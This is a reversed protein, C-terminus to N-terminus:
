LQVKRRSLIQNLASLGRAQLAKVANESKGLARAVQAIPMEAIFRMIIVDCQDATLRRLAEQLHRVTLSRDTLLELNESGDALKENLGVHDRVKMRRYHDVALNRAIRFVWARFPAGGSSYRPLGEIVRLFVEATLDEAMQENGVRYFLYRYVDRHYSEYITTIAAHDGARACTILNNNILEAMHRDKIRPSDSRNIM